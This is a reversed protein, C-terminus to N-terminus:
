KGPEDEVAIGWKRGLQMATNIMEPDWSAINWQQLAACELLLSKAEAASDANAIAKLILQQQAILGPHVATGIDAAANAAFPWEPVARHKSAEQVIAKVRLYDERFFAEDSENLFTDGLREVIVVDLNPCQAVAFRLDAFVAEPIRDDHTDRRINRDGSIGGAWSGGSVHIERVRQLPYSQILERMGVDFNHSQCYINHLDLVVFGGVPGTLQELFAGHQLVDARSFALALNEIGVPSRAHRHLAALRERGASLAAETLPLPLPCGKHADQSSMFGFHESVHRFPFAERIAAFRRLWSEQRGSWHGSLLSYYVGHGYLRDAAAYAKLL